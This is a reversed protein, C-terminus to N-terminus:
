ALATVTIDRIDSVLHPYSQYINYLVLLSKRRIMGVKHKLLKRLLPIIDTSIDDNIFYRLMTLVTLNIFM